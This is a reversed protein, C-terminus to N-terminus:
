FPARMFLAALPVGLAIMLLALSAGLWAPVGMTRNFGLAVIAVGWVDLILHSIGLAAPVEWGLGIWLWDWLILFAGVVLAAMGTVNLIQDVDSPHRALRLIVHTVVGLLLWQGLLFAPALFVLSQYYKETPLFTLYSPTSPVRGMMSLPLYLLLSDLLARLSQAYLGWHPAPRDALERVMKAPNVYGLLWVSLFSKRRRSPAREASM